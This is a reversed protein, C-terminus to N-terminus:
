RGEQSPAEKVERAQEALLALNQQETEAGNQEQRTYVVRRPFPIEVGERDFAEKIRRRLEREAAWHQLPKVKVVLRITIASDAFDLIGQVEPTELVIDTREMAWTKGVEEMVRMAKGVDQEYAVGVTVVARVWQRNFNGFARIEGNPIVRLEGSFQRYKTVRLGVEEVLGATDGFNVVDGVRILGEFLIFLGSIVDRVLTQAGFGLALSIVGLGALIPTPDVGLRLLVLVGAIFITTYRLLDKLLPAITKGKEGMALKKRWARAEEPPLIFVRDILQYALRLLLTSVLIVLGASVFRWLYTRSTESTLTAYIGSLDVGWIGVITFIALIYVLYSIVYRLVDYLTEAAERSLLLDREVRGESLLWWRLFKEIGKYILRAAALIIATLVLSRVLFRALNLYGLSQLAVICIIFLIFLPYVKTATVYIIKELRNEARPLLSVMAEKNYTLLVLLLLLGLRFILWLLAILGEHYEVAKLIFILTPLFTVYITIRLLHRYLYSAISDRCNILRQEPDWPMFLEQVVSKIFRYATLGALLIVVALMGKGRTVFLFLLIGALLLFARVLTHYLVRVTARLIKKGLPLPPPVTYRDLIRQLGRQFPIPLLMALLFAVVILSGQGVMQRLRNSALLSDKLANLQGPLDSLWIIVLSRLNVLDTYVPQLATWSIQSPERKWLYYRNRQLSLERELEQTVRAREAVLQAQEQLITAREEAVQAKEQTLRSIEELSRLIDRILSTGPAASAQEKEVQLKLRSLEAERKLAELEQQALLARNKATEVEAAAREAETKAWEYRNLIETPSLTGREAELKRALIEAKKQALATANEALTIRERALEAKMKAVEAKLEAVQQKLEAMRTQEATTAKEKATKAEELARQARELEQQARVREQEAKEKETEAAKQAAVVKEQQAKLEEESM